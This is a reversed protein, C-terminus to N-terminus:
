GKGKIYEIKFSFTSLYDIIRRRRDNTAITNFLYILPKHDTRVIFDCGFLLWEFHKVALFIGLLERDYASYKSQAENLTKSFLSLPGRECSLSAGVAVSSADTTLVFKDGPMPYILKMSNSLSDKLSNFSSSCEETWVFDVNKRLLKTLPLQLNAVNPIFKRYFNIMGLFRRLQKLNSPEPFSKISDIKETSPRYGDSNLFHGLFKTENLCFESKKRNVVLGAQFLSNLLSDLSQLHNEPSSFLLIDDCYAIVDTRGTLVTDVYRQLTQTANKLGMPMVTYEYLGFPTTVATKHQDKPDIPILFFAKQLDIKSFICGDPIRSLLDEIRPPVYNDKVTHKNLLTYNAVFRWSGDPKKVPFFPSAYQSKSRVMRGLKVENEIEAKAAKVKDPSLRYPKSPKPVGTTNIQFLIDPKPKPSNIDFIDKHKELLTLLSHNSNVVSCSIPKTNSPKLAQYCNTLNDLLRKRKVDVLLDYKSLFDSGLIPTKVDAVIFSHSFSRRIKPLSLTTSVLGFSPILTQNAARLEANYKTAFKSFYKPLLSVEAGTDVLFHLNRNNMSANVLFSNPQSHPLSSQGM